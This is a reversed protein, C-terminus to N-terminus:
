DAKALCIISIQVNKTKDRLADACATLTSGTTVVDDVLAIHKGAIDACSIASFVKNVNDFRQLRSKRTQSDTHVIRKLIDTRVPKNLAEGFGKAIWESQNYGRKRQKKPHLPVPILLDIETFPTNELAYGAHKGLIVGIEKHYHYKLQFILKQLIGGKHYHFGATALAIPIRGEFIHAIENDKFDAYRVPELQAICRYCVTKEQSLLPHSCILCTKPFLLHLLGTAYKELRKM